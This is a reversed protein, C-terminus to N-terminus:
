TILWKKKFIYLQFSLNTIFYITTTLCLGAIGLFYFALVKCPIYATYSIISIQTTTKTDGISYFASSTIQGMTGGIFMGGLWIMIWWLQEINGISVRGHGVLLYLLNQGFLGLILLGGFSIIGVQLLKRYYILQFGVKDKKKYKISLKPVLPAIIAKNLIQSVAGYLQQALYYLSLSGSPNMSLLYRDVVPDTKYYATGLLLPKISRWALIISRNKFDPYIPNGLGPALLLAQLVLQLTSLWAAAVVGFHPLALILLLLSISNALIPTFEAWLFQQRSHYSAWQVGNIATFIMGILQIRTLKVTLEQGIKDFGPVTLPVWWPAAIYLTIAIIGFFIAVLILFAWTDHHIREASEGSLIPVLVHMLSGSIVTLVLQPITMGAFLADTEPTPGIYTLIYWQFLFLVLLNLTSLVSLQISLKM